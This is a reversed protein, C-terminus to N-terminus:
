LIVQMGAAALDVAIQAGIGASAGTVVAVKNTWRDMILHCHVVFSHCIHNPCKTQQNRAWRSVFRNKRKDSDLMYRRTLYYQYVHFYIICYLQQIQICM